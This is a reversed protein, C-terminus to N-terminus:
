TELIKGLLKVLESLSKDDLKEKIGSFDPDEREVPDQAQTIAVDIISLIACVDSVFVRRAKVKKTFRNYNLSSCKDAINKRNFDCPSACHAFENRISKIIGLDSFVKHPIYGLAYSLRIKSSFIALAGQGEFLERFQKSKIFHRRLLLELRDELYSAAMLACGRDTEKNLEFRFAFIEPFRERIHKKFDLIKKNNDKAM